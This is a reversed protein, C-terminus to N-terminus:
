WGRVSSIAFAYGHALLTSALLGVGSTLDVGLGTEFVPPGGAYYPTVELVIPVPADVDPRLVWTDLAAGDPAPIRHQELIATQLTVGDLPESLNRFYASLAQSALPAPEEV